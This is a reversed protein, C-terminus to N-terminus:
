GLRIGPRGCLILDFQGIKRIAQALVSATAFADLDDVMPDDVLILEEAGMSLPKKMVDM